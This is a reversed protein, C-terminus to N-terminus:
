IFEKIKSCYAAKAAYDTYEEGNICHDLPFQLLDKLSNIESMYKDVEEKFEKRYAEIAEEKTYFIKSKLCGFTGGNDLSRVKYVDESISIEDNYFGEIICKEAVNYTDNVYVISGKTIIM